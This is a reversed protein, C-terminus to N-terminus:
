EQRPFGMSLCVPLSYDKPDWLTQCSKAVWYGDCLNDVNINNESLHWCTCMLTHTCVWVFCVCVCLCLAIIGTWKLVMSGRGCYTCITLPGHVQSREDIVETKIWIKHLNMQNHLRFLIRFELWSIDPIQKLSKQRQLISLFVLPFSSYINFLYIRM